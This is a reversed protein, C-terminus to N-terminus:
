VKPLLHERLRQVLKDVEEADSPNPECQIDMGGLQQYMRFRNCHQSDGYCLKSKIYEAAKPMDKMNDNFFQCYEILECAM